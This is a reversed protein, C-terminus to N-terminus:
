VVPTFAVAPFVWLNEQNGDEYDPRRCELLYPCLDATMSEKENIFRGAILRMYQWPIQYFSGGFDFRDSRNKGVGTLKLDDVRHLIRCKDCLRFNPWCTRELKALFTLWEDEVLLLNNSYGTRKRFSDSSCSCDCFWSKWRLWCCLFLACLDNMWLLANLITFSCWFGSVRHGFCWWWPCILYASSITRVLSPRYSQQHIRKDNWDVGCAAFSNFDTIRDVTIELTGEVAM